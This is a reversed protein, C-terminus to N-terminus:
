HVLFGTAALMVGVVGFLIGAFWFVRRGSLLMISTIVLGV